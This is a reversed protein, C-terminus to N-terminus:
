FILITLIDSYNFILINLFDCYLWIKTIIIMYYLQTVLSPYQPYNVQGTTFFPSSSHVPVNNSPQVYQKQWADSICCWEKAWTGSFYTWDVVEKRVKLVRWFQTTYTGAIDLSYFIFGFTISESFIISSPETTEFYWWFYPFQLRKFKFILDINFIIIQCFIAQTIDRTSTCINGLFKAKLNM